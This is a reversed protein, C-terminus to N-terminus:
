RQILGGCSGADRDPFWLASDGELQCWAGEPERTIVLRM